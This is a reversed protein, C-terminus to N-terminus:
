VFLFTEWHFCDQLLQCVMIHIESFFLKTAFIAASLPFPPCGAQGPFHFLHLFFFFIFLLSLTIYICYMHGIDHITTTIHVQVNFLLWGSLLLRQPSVKVATMFLWIGHQAHCCSAHEYPSALIPNLRHGSHPWSPRVRSTGCSSRQELIYM